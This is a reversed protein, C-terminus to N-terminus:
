PGIMQIGKSDAIRAIEPIAERAVDNAAPLEVKEGSKLNCVLYQREVRRGRRGREERTELQMNSVSAFAVDQVSTMGWIGSHRSFGDPGVDVRDLFMSPAFGLAAVPGLILLIWGYRGNSKRLVWGAAAAVLGALLIVGPVWAEYRFIHHDGVTSERVCGSCWTILLIITALCTFRRNM